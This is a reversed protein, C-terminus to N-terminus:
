TIPQCFETFHPHMCGESCPAGMSDNAPSPTETGPLQTNTKFFNLGNIVNTAYKNDLKQNETVPEVYEAGTRLKPYHGNKAIKSFIIKQAHETLETNPNNEVHNMIGQEVNNTIEIIHNKGDIDYNLQGNTVKLNLQNARDENSNCILSYRNANYNKNLCGFAMDWLRAFPYTTIYTLAVILQNPITENHNHKEAAALHGALLDKPDHSHEELGFIYHLDEIAENAIGLAISFIEPVGPLRDSNVGISMLHGAFLGYTLTQFVINHIIRFPNIFQLFSETQYIWWLDRFKNNIANFISSQQQMWDEIMELSELANESNFIFTSTGIILPTAIHLFNTPIFMMWAWLPPIDNFVTWWTGITCTTLTCCMALVCVTALIMGFSQPHNSIKEWLKGWTHTIIMDTFANFTLMGYAVGAVGSMPLIFLPWLPVPIAALWPIVCFAEILLYITGIGTCIGALTSFMKVLFFLWARDNALESIPRQKFINLWDVIGQEYPTYKKTADTNLDRWIRAVDNEMKLLHAEFQQKHKTDANKVHELYHLANLITLYDKFFDSQNEPFNHCLYEKALEREFDQTSFLKNLAGRINQSFIEGEYAVALVMSVCALPVVPLLAFMGSFSLLGVTISAGTTLMQVTTEFTFEQLSKM